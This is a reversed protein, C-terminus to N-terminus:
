TSYPNKGGGGGGVVVLVSKKKKAQNLYVVGVIGCVCPVGRREQELSPDLLM